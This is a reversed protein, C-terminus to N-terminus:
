KKSGVTQRSNTQLNSQYHHSIVNLLAYKSKMINFIRRLGRLEGNLSDNQKSAGRFIHKSVTM